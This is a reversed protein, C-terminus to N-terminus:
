LNSWLELNSISFDLLNSQINTLDLILMIIKKVDTFSFDHREFNELLFKLFDRITYQNIDDFKNISTYNALYLCFLHVGKLNRSNSLQLNVDRKKFEDVLHKYNEKKIDSIRKGL